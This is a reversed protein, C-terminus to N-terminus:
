EETGNNEEELKSEPEAKAQEEAQQRLYEAIARQKIEEEEAVSLKKQSNNVSNLTMIFKVLEYIFFAILPLIIILFFGLQTQIFNLFGGLGALRTGTYVCIIDHPSVEQEDAIPNNDGKTVYSVSGASSSKVEIIRHTNIEKVGDGNLDVWYSIVDGENLEFKAQDSIKKGFIVDGKKMTDGDMSNTVINIMCNGNIAPVGDPDAQAIFVMATVLVAFAVFVWTVIDVVLKLTKM